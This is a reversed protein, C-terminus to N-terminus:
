AYDLLKKKKFNKPTNQPFCYFYRYKERILKIYVIGKRFIENFKVSINSFIFPLNQLKNETTEIM